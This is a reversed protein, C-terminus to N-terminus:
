FPRTACSIAAESFATVASDYEGRTYNFDGLHLLFEAGLDAARLLCWPLEDGGGSDGIVAFKIKRQDDFRWVLEITDSRDLMISIHRNLGETTENIQTQARSNVDLTASTAINGVSFSINGANPALSISPEPQIARLLTATNPSEGSIPGIGSLERINVFIAGEIEFRALPTDLRTTPEPPSLTLRPFRVGRHAVYAISAVGAGAVSAKILRRRGTNVTHTKRNKLM